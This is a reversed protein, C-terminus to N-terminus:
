KLNDFVDKIIKKSLGQKIFSKKIKKKEYGKKLFKKAIPLIKQSEKYKFQKKVSKIKLNMIINNTKRYEFFLLCSILVVILLLIPSIISYIKNIGLPIRIEPPTPKIHITKSSTSITNNYNTQAILVYDGPLIDKSPTITKAFMAQEKVGIIETENFIIKNSMSKIIYDVFINTFGIKNLNFLTIDAKPNQNQYIEKYELPINLIIEFSPKPSQVEIIIPIENFFKNTQILLKNPYVGPTFSLPPTFTLKIDQGEGKKLTFTNPQISLIKSLDETTINFNAQEQNNNTIKIIKTFTENQRIQLKILDVNTSFYPTVDKVVHATINQTVSFSQIIFLTLNLLILVTILTKSKDKM